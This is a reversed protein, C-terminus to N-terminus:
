RQLVPSPKEKFACILFLAIGSKKLVESDGLESPYYEGGYLKSHAFNTITRASHM